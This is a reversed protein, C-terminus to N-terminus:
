ERSLLFDPLRTVTRTFVQPSHKARAIILAGQIQILAQEARAQAADRDMGADVLVGAIASEWNAAARRISKQFLDHAQGVNFLAILCSTRGRDYLRNLSVVMAELRQRPDDERSLPEIINAGVWQGVHDLVAQAMEEKGGPFYHYLSAKVLGTAQCLDNLSTGEYGGARFAATLRELVQEKSMLPAPM